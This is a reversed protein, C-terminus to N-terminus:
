NPHDVLFTFGFDTVAGFPQSQKKKANATDGKLILCKLLRSAFCIFHRENKDLPNYQSLIACLGCPSADVTVRTNWDKNFFAM